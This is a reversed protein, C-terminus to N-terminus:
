RQERDPHSQVEHHGARGSRRQPVRHPRFLQTGDEAPVNAGCDTASRQYQFDRDAAGRDPGAPHQLLSPDASPSYM